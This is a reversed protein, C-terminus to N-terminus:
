EAAAIPLQQEIGINVGNSSPSFLLVLDVLEDCGQVTWTEYVGDPVEKVYGDPVGVKTDKLIRQDCGEFEAMPLLVPLLDTITAFPQQTEGPAVPTIQLQGSPDVEASTNFLTTRDCRTVRFREIWKGTRPVNDGEDMRVPVDIVMRELQVQYGTECFEGAAQDVRMVAAVQARRYGESGLFAAFPTDALDQVSTVTAASAKSAFGVQTPLWFSAAVIMVAMSRILM